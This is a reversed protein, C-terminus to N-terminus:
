AKQEFKNRCTNGEEKAEKEEKTTTSDQKEREKESEKGKKLRTSCCLSM